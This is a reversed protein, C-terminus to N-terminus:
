EHDVGKKLLLMAYADLAGELAAIARQECAAAIRERQAIKRLKEAYIRIITPSYFRSTLLGSLSFDSWLPGRTFTRTDTEDWYGHYRLGLRAVKATKEIGREGALDIALAIIRVDEAAFLSATVGCDRLLRSGHIPDCGALAVLELELKGRLQAIQAALEYHRDSRMFPPAAYTTRWATCRPMAGARPTPSVTPTQKTWRGGNAAPAIKQAIM